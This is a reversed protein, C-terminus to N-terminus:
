SAPLDSPIKACALKVQIGGNNFSYHHDFPLRTHGLLIPDNCLIAADWGACNLRLVKGFQDYLNRMDHGSRVRVGYPPNTVVTGVIPPPQIASVAQQKFEIVELVGARQANARAMQIAGADRDSAQIMPIEPHIQGEAQALLSQWLQSDFDPQDM